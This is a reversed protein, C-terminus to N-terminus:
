SNAKKFQLQHLPQPTRGILRYFRSFENIQTGIMDELRRALDPLNGIPGTIIATEATLENEQVKQYHLDLWDPDVFNAFLFASFRRADEEFSPDEISLYLKLTNSLSKVQRVNLNLPEVVETLLDGIIESLRSQEIATELGEEEHELSVKIGEKEKMKSAEEGGDESKDPSESNRSVLGLDYLGEEDVTPVHFPIQVIKELYKQGFDEGTVHHKVIKEYRAMLSAEVYDKDCALFTVCGAATLSHVSEMFQTLREPTCRDLDDIFFILPKTGSDTLLSAIDQYALALGAAGLYKPRKRFIKDGIFNSFTGGFIKWFLSAVALFVSGTAVNKISQTTNGFDTFIAILVLVLIIAALLMIQGGYQRFFFQTKLASAQDRFPGKTLHKFVSALVFDHLNENGDWKWPNIPITVFGRNEFAAKLANILTSKGAGWPGYLGVTLLSLEQAKARDGKKDAVEEVLDVIKEAIRPFGLKPKIAAGDSAATTDDQFGRKLETASPQKTDDLPDTKPSTKTKPIKNRPQQALRNYARKIDSNKPFRHLADEYVEIAKKYHGLRELSTGLGVYVRPEDPIQSIAKSYADRALQYRGKKEM